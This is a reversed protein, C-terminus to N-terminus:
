DISEKKQLEMKIEQLRVNVKMPTLRGSKTWYDFSLDVLIRARQEKELDREFSNPRMGVAHFLDKFEGNSSESTLNYAQYLKAIEIRWQDCKYYLDYVSDPDADFADGLVDMKISKANSVDGNTTPSGTSRTLNVGHIFSMTQGLDTFAKGVGPLVDNPISTLIMYLAGCESAQTAITKSQSEAAHALFPFSLLTLLLLARIRAM